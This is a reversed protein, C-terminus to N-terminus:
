RDVELCAIQAGKYTCVIMSTLLYAADEATISALDDGSDKCVLIDGVFSVVPMEATRVIATPARERIRGIEDCVIVYEKREKGVRRHYLEAYGAGIAEALHDDDVTEVSVLSCHEKREGVHLVTLKM